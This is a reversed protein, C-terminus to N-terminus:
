IYWHINSIKKLKYNFKFKVIKEQINGFCDM